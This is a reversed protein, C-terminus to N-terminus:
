LVALRLPNEIFGKLVQLFRAGEAGDIARHDVSLTVTVQHGIQIVGEEVIPREQAAGVALISGQPPNIIAQFHSIGMMGLNSITFSGGQYDEPKLKSSRAREALSKMESSLTMLSKSDAQRIVPTVLGGEISVAVAVDSHAYRRIFTDHWSVNVEPVEQLALACARIFFDNVSVKLGTQQNMQERLTLLADVRLDVTLYFHPITQKSHTLRQAIVKRMGSLPHDQYSSAECSPVAGANQPVERKFAASVDDAVIRGRPGSGQLSSLDVQHQQAMRKALPSAIIRQSDLSVKKPELSLTPSPAASVEVTQPPPSKVSPLDQDLVSSDEGEELLLAIVSNVPVDDSGEAVVIRGLIGEDVAEVEMTAKDTEIEALLDGSRVSDGEKKHWRVLHGQTMTPSLAPMLIRIM